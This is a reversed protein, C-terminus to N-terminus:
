PARRYTTPPGTTAGAPVFTGVLDGAVVRGEFSGVRALEFRDSYFDLRLPPDTGRSGFVAATGSRSPLFSGSLVGRYSFLRMEAPAASPGVSIIFRGEIPEDVFSVVDLRMVSLPVVSGFLGVGGEISSGPNESSFPDEDDDARLFRRYNTDIAVVSADTPLGPYLSVGVRGEGSLDGEAAAILTGSFATLSVPTDYLRQARGNAADLVVLYSAAGAAPRASRRVVDGREVNFTVRATQTAPTALPLTTAGRATGLETSVRLTYRAGPRVALSAQAGLRLSPDLAANLFRYVGAGKGDSRRTLDEVAVASDGAPGVVVVTAGSIPEGGAAVIPDEPDAACVGDLRTSPSPLTPDEECHRGGTLTREVLVVQEATGSNLVSNVAV